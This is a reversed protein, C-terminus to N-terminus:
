CFEHWKTLWHSDLGFEIQVQDCAKERAQRWNCTNAELESQNMASTIDATIPPTIVNIKSKRCHVSLREILVLGLDLGENQWFRDMIRILQLTLM